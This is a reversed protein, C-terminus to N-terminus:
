EMTDVNILDYGPDFTIVLNQRVSDFLDGFKEYSGRSRVEASKLSIQEDTLPLRKVIFFGGDSWFVESIQGPNLEFVVDEYSLRREDLTFFYEEARNPDENFKSALESFDEGGAAREYIDQAYTRRENEDYKEGVEIMIHQTRFWTANLRDMIQEPSDEGSLAAIIKEEFIDTEMTYRLLEETLHSEDLFSKFEEPGGKENEMARINNSIRQRDNDDPSFGYNKAMERITYQRTLYSLTERKLEERSAEKEWTENRYQEIARKTKFFYYAYESMTVKYDGITVPYNINLTGTYPEDIYDSIGADSISTNPEDPASIVIDPEICPAEEKKCSILLNCTLLIVTLLLIAKKM